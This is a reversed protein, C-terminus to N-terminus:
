RANKRGEINRIMPMLGSLVENTYAAKNFYLGLVGLGSAGKRSRGASSLERMLDPVLATWVDLDESGVIRPAGPPGAAALWEKLAPGLSRFSGADVGPGASGRAGLAGLDEVLVTPKDGGFDGSGISVLLPHPREGGSRALVESAVARIREGELVGGKLVIGCAGAAETLKAPEIGAPDGCFLLGTPLGKKPGLLMPPPVPVPVPAVPAPVVAGAPPARPPMPRAPAVPAVIPIEEAEPIGEMVIEGPVVPITEPM